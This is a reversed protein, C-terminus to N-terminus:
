PLLDGLLPVHDNFHPPGSGFRRAYSTSVVAEIDSPDPQSAIALESYFADALEVATGGNSRGTLSDDVMEFNPRLWEFTERLPPPAPADCLHSSVLRRDSAHVIHALLPKKEIARHVLYGHQQYIQDQHKAAHEVAWYLLLPSVQWVPRRMELGILSCFPEVDSIVLEPAWRRIEYSLQRYNANFTLNGEPNSFNLLADLCYDITQSGMSRTYACRLIQHHPRDAMLEIFRRFPEASGPRNGAAYLIRM